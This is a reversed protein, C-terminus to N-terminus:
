LALRNEQATGNQMRAPSESRLPYKNLYRVCRKRVNDETANGGIKAAVSKWSLGELFRLQIIQRLESDPVSQLCSQLHRFLRLYEEKRKTLTAALDKLYPRTQGMDQESLPMPIGEITITRKLYPFEQSSGAVTDAVTCLNTQLSEYQKDLLSIESELYRLQKFMKDTM